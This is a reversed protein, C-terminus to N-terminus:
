GGGRAAEEGFRGPRDTKVPRLKWRGAFSTGVEAVGARPGGDTLPVPLRGRPRGPLRM